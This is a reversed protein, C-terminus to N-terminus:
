SSTSSSLHAHFCKALSIICFSSRAFQLMGGGNEFHFAASAARKYEDAHALASDGHRTHDPRDALLTTDASEQLTETARESSTQGTRDLMRPPNRSRTDIPWAARRHM